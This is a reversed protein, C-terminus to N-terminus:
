EDAHTDALMFGRGRVTAILSAGIKRRIRSVLVDLVNSDRETDREYVHEYLETRSVIQNQHQILYALIRYEQATLELVEGALTFRGANADHELPGCRLTPSAHGGSRRILANLRVIVEDMEFPKTLYDDAGANFGALKEHWRSRATLMLVPTRVSDARWSELVTLGDISPLGVDLVIADYPETAGLFQAERGDHALDVVFGATSLRAAIREALKPEDEALLVRM